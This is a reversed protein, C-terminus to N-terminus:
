KCKLIGIRDNNLEQQPAVLGRQNQHDKTRESGADRQGYKRRHTTSEPAATVPSRQLRRNLGLLVADAVQFVLHSGDM